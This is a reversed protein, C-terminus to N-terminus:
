PPPEDAGAAEDLGLVRAIFAGRDVRAAADVPHDADYTEGDRPERAARQLEMATMGAIYFDHRAQQLLV